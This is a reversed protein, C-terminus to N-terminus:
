GPSGPGDLTAAANAATNEIYVLTSAATFVCIVIDIYIFTCILRLMLRFNLKYVISFKFKSYPVATNPNKNM